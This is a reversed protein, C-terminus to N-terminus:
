TLLLVNITKLNIDSPITVKSRSITSSDNVIVCNFEANSINQINNNINNLLKELSEWDNYIPILITFKKMKNWDYM